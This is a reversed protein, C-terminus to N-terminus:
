KNGSLTTAYDSLLPINAEMGKSARYGIYIGYLWVLLLILNFIISLIRGADGVTFLNIITFVIIAIIYCIGLLIAQISQFKLRRDTNGYLVYVILGTILPIIYSVIFMIKNDKNEM